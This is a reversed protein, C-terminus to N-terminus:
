KKTPRPGVMMLIIVLTSHCQTHHISPQSLTQIM